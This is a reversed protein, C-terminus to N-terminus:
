QTSQPRAADRLKGVWVKYQLVVISVTFYTIIPMSMLCFLFVQLERRVLFSGDRFSNVLISLNRGLVLFLNGAKWVVSLVLGDPHVFFTLLAFIGIGGFLPSQDTVIAIQGQISEPLAKNYIMNSTHCTFDRVSVFFASSLAIMWTVTEITYTLISFMDLESLWQTWSTTSCSSSLSPSSPHSSSPHSSSPHSSSPHSAFASDIFDSVSQPQITENGSPPSSSPSTLIPSSTPNM